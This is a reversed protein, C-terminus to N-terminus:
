LKSHLNKILEITEAEQDSESQSMSKIRSILSKSDARSFRGADRLISEIEKMTTADHITAKIGSIRADNDAPEEVVSIEFLEIEKLVRAGGRMEDSIIRYGISLGNVAGHKLLACVDNAVSHGPTLEGKVWLGHEDEKIEVWKGIVVGFHNWRLQVPRERDKLTNAYAGPEITDGYSDLGNFVSAYGEFTNPDTNSFKVDTLKLNLLKTQM